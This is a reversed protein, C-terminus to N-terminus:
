SKVRCEYLWEDNDAKQRHVYFRNTPSPCQIVDDQNLGNSNHCTWSIRPDSVDVAGSGEKEVRMESVGHVIVQDWGCQRSGNDIVADAHASLCLSTLLVGGLLFVVVQKM